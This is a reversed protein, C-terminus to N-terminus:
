FLAGPDDIRTDDEPVELSPVMAIDSAAGNFTVRAVERVVGDTGAQNQPLVQYM